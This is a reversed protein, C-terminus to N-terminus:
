SCPSCIRSRILYMISNCSCPGLSWKCGTCPRPRQILKRRRRRHAFGFCALLHSFDANEELPTHTLSRQDDKARVCTLRRPAFGAERTVMRQYLSMSHCQPTSTVPNLVLLCCVRESRSTSLTVYFAHRLSRSTSLSLARARALALALSRACSFFFACRAARPIRSTGPRRRAAAGHPRACLAAWRCTSTSLHALSLNGGSRAANWGSAEDSISVREEQGGACRCLL